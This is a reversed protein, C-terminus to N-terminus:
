LYVRLALEVARHQPVSGYVSNPSGSFFQWQL